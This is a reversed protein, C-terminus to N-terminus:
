APRVLFPLLAMYRAQKVSRSLRVQHKQCVGTYTRPIIKGRESVYHKLNDTDKYDPEGKIKCFPCDKIKIIRRKIRRVPKRKAM